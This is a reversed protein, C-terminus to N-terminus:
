ENPQSVTPQVPKKEAKSTGGKALKVKHKSDAASKTLVQLQNELIKQRGNELRSIESEMKALREQVRERERKMLALRVDLQENLLSKLQSRIEDKDGMVMQATLLQIRSKITWAKVELDYQRADRDKIQGIRESDRALDRIAREYDKRRNERLYTLLEKLEAHNQQVFAMVAAEREATIPLEAKNKLGAKGIAVDTPAGKDAKRVNEQGLVSGALLLGLLSIVSLIKV